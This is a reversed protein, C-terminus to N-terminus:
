PLSGCLRSGRRPLLRDGGAHRAQKLVRLLPNLGCGDIFELHALDVIIQPDVAAVAAADLLALEGRLAVVIHSDCERTSLNLRFMPEGEQKLLLAPDQGLPQNVSSVM